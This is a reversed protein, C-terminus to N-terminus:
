CTNRLDNKAKKKLKTIYKIKKQFSSKEFISLLSTQINATLDNNCKNPTKRHIKAIVFVVKAFAVSIELIGAVAINHIM